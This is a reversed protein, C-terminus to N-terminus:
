ERYKEIAETLTEVLYGSKPESGPIRVTGAGPRTVGVARLISGLENGLAQATTGLADALDATHLRGGPADSLARHADLLLPPVAASQDTPGSSQGPGGFRARIVNSGEGEAGVGAVAGAGAAADHAATHQTAQRRAADLMGALTDGAVRGAPATGAGAAGGQNAGPQQKAAPGTTDPIGFDNLPPHLPPMATYPHTATSLKKDKYLRPLIRAWRSAYYRGPGTGLTLADLTPRRAALQPGLANIQKPTIRYSKFPEPDRDVDDADPYSIFGSGKHPTQKPDLRAGGSPFLFHLEEPGSVRMGIRVRSQKKQAATIVDQTARLGCGLYRVRAARGTNVISDIKEMLKPPLEAVEDGIILIAPLDPSVPIKDDDVSEMLDQYGSKRAAIAAIAFDVMIHAEEVTDATWDVLPVDATGDVAWCRLWPLSIGAGTVDIHFLVADDTRLVSANTANITNSKGSEVQGVMVACANLLTPGATTGDPFLGLELPDNISTVSTDEPYPLTAALVDQATVRIQLQGYTLGDLVQVGGGRPLRLDVALKRDADPPLDPTTSPMRVLVTYGVEAPWAKVGEVVHGELRFLRTLRETWQAAQGNAWRQLRRETRESRATDEATALGRALVVAATTGAGWWGTTQWTLATHDTLTAASWGTAALWGACRTVAHGFPRRRVTDVIGQATAGAAGALVAYGPPLGAAGGVTALTYAGGAAMTAAAAPTLNWGWDLPVTTKAM